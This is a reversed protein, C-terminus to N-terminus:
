LDEIDLPTSRDNQDSLEFEHPNSGLDMEGKEEEQFYDEELIGEADFGFM